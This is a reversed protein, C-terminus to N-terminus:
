RCLPLDGCCDWPLMRGVAASEGRRIGLDFIGTNWTMLRENDHMTNREESIKGVVRM